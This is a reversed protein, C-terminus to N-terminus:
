FPFFYGAWWTALFFFRALWFDGGGGGWSNFPRGRLSLRLLKQVPRAKSLKADILIRAGIKDKPVIKERVEILTETIRVLM